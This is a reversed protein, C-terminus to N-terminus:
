LCMTIIATAVGGIAALVSLVKGVSSWIDKKTKVKELYLNIKGTYEDVQGSLEDLKGGQTKIYGSKPCEALKKLADSEWKKQDATHEKFSEELKQLLQSTLAVNTDIKALTRSDNRWM